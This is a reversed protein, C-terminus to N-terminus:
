ETRKKTDVTEQQMVVTHQATVKDNICLRITAAGQPSSTFSSVSGNHAEQQCMPCCSSCRGHVDYTCAARQGAEQMQNSYAVGAHSSGTCAYRLPGEHTHSAM